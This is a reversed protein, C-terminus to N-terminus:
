PDTVGPTNIKLHIQVNHGMQREYFFLLGKSQENQFVTKNTDWIYSIKKERQYVGFPRVQFYKDYFEHTPM